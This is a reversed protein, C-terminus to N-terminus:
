NIQTFSFSAHKPRAHTPYRAGAGFVANVRIANEVVTLLSSSVPRESNEVYAAAFASRSGNSAVSAVTAEHGFGAPRVELVLAFTTVRPSEPHM